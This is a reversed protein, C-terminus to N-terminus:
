SETGDGRARGRLARIIPSPDTYSKWRVIQGDTVTLWQVFEITFPRRTGKVVSEEYIVGAAQDGQVALRVLEERLPEVRSTFIRFSRLVEDRGRYTGIWDMDTNFGPVPTYNIWEIDPALCDLAAEINGSTLADFWRRAVAETAATGDTAGTGNAAATGDSPGDGDNGITM